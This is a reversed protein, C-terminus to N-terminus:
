GIRGSGVRGEESAMVAHELGGVACALIVLRVSRRVVRADLMVVIASDVLGKRKTQTGVDRRISSHSHSHVETGRHLNWRDHVQVRTHLHRRRWWMGTGGRAGVRLRTTWRDVDGNLVSRGLAAWGWDGHGSLLVISHSQHDLDDGM